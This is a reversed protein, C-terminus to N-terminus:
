SVMAVHFSIHSYESHMIRNESYFTHYRPSTFVLICMQWVLGSENRLSNANQSFLGVMILAVRILPKTFYM